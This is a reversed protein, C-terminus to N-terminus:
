QKAPAVLENTTWGGGLANILQVSATMQEQRLTLATRQNSLLTTQATIVNLYSDVGLRYRDLALKLYRQSAAVAADQQQREQSLIRLEALNDEVAQFAALVTERYGAVAGRYTAWAQETVARRKGADFITEALTGGVSWVLAPGSFLNAVSGSQYGVSGSLTVTPFYAARAVGILANEEAVQREAAAIDPRRELLESPVGFPVAVPQAASANTPISFVSAPRGTLLAIAHEMQARQIGLDTAQAEITTLQTEAQAVGQDSDIGTRNLVVTLNLSDQYAHVTSDLLQKQADLSRLTFYDEALDSQLTLRTNELDALSAQAAFKSARYTNRISGWFDPEWSADFPLSYETRTQEGSSSGTTTHARTV